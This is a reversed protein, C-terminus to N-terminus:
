DDNDTSVADEDEEELELGAAKQSYRLYKIIETIEDSTVNKKQPPMKDTGNLVIERIDADSFNDALYEEDILRPAQTHKGMADSGHCNSCVNHFYQQGKKYPEPVELTPKPACSYIFLVSIFISIHSKFHKM